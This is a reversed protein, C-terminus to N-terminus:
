FSNKQGLLVWNSPPSKPSCLRLREPGSCSRTITRRRQGAPQTLIRHSWGPKTNRKHSRHPEDTSDRQMGRAPAREFPEQDRLRCGEQRPGRCIVGRRGVGGAGREVGMGLATQAGQQSSCLLAVRHSGQARSSLSPGQSAGDQCYLM